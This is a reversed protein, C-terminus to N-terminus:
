SIFETIRFKKKTKAPAAKKIRTANIIENAALHDFVARELTQLDDNELIFDNDSFYAYRLTTTNFSEYRWRQGQKVQVIHIDNQYIHLAEVEEFQEPEFDSGIKEFYEATTCTKKAAQFQEFTKPQESQKM